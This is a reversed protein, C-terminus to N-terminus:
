YCDVFTNSSIQIWQQAEIEFRWFDSDLAVNPRSEPDVYKGLTYISRSVPDFCMKHCSRPAPGHQKRTDASICTWQQDSISFSWFDSLDRSGDWGGLLYIIGADTDICMQHGGRMPPTEGVEPSIRQWVPTYTCDSIYENFLEESFAQDLLKEAHAFDGNTVKTLLIYSRPTCTLCCRSRLNLSRTCHWGTLSIPM